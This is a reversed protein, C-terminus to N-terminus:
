AIVFQNRPHLSPQHQSGGGRFAATTHFVGYDSDPTHQIHQVPVVPLIQPEAGQHDPLSGIRQEMNQQTSAAEFRSILKEASSLSPLSPGASKDEADAGAGVSPYDNPHGPM